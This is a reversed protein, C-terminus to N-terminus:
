DSKWPEVATAGNFGVNRLRQDIDSQKNGRSLLRPGMSAALHGAHVAQYLRSKWPEVATAGNFCRRHVGTAARREINGRSLLRPGMSVAICHGAILIALEAMM